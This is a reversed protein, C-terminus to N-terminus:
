PFGGQPHSYDWAKAVTMETMVIVRERIEIIACIGRRRLSDSGRSNYDIVCFSVSSLTNAGSHYALHFLPCGCHSDIGDSQVGEVPLPFRKVFCQGVFANAM